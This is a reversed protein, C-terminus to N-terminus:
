FYLDNETSSTRNERRRARSHGWVSDTVRKVAEDQFGAKDENYIASLTFLTESM